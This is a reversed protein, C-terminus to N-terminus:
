MELARKKTVYNWITVIGTAVVKALMYHINVGEVFFWMCVQNIGLGVVSTTVFLVLQKVGNRAGAFVFKQCLIYNMVVAASFALGSSLLYSIGVHETLLYLLGYDFLFTAGGVLCFRFFEHTIM